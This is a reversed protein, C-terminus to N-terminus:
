IMRNNYFLPLTRYFHYRNQGLTEAIDKSYDRCHQYCGCKIDYPYNNDCWETCKNHNDTICKADLCKHLNVRYSDPIVNRYGEISSTRKGNKLLFILLISLVIIIIIGIM